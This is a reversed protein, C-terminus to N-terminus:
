PTKNHIHRMKAMGHIVKAGVAVIEEDSMTSNEIFQEMKKIMTECFVTSKDDIFIPDESLLKKDVMHNIACGVILTFTADDEVDSDDFLKIISEKIIERALAARKTYKGDSSTLDNM